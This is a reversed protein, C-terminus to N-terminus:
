VTDGACKTCIVGRCQVNGAVALELARNVEDDVEPDIRMTFHKSSKNVKEIAFKQSDKYYSCGECEPNRIEACCLPCILTMDNLLCGRKGQASSCVICKIKM